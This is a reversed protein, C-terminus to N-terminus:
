PGVQISNPRGDVKKKEFQIGEVQLTFDACITGRNLIPYFDTEETKAWGECTKNIVNELRIM